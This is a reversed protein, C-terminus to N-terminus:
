PNSTWMASVVIAAVVAATCLILVVTTGLFEKAHDTM